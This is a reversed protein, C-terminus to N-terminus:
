PRHLRQGEISTNGNDATLLEGFLMLVSALAIRYLAFRRLRGTGGAKLRDALLTSAFSAATGALLGGASGRRPQEMLLRSGKLTCAGVIVPLAVLWSLEDADAPAFGRMRAATLTSGRRSVGPVLAAAQALGLSLGDLTSAQEVTRSSPAGDAAAMAIAGLALGVAIPRPGSLRREIPRELLYGAIVPPALSSALLTLRRVQGGELRSWTRRLRGAMAVSLAAATGGHLAVDFAKGESPDEALRLARRALAVHASSSVPAMEAPGQILGLLVARAVM